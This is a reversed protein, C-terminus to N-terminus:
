DREDRRGMPNQWVEPRLLIGPVWPQPGAPHNKEQHLASPRERQLAQISPGAHHFLNALNDQRKQREPWTQLHPLQCAQTGDAGRGRERGTGHNAPPHMMDIDM